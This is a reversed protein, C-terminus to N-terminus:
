VVGFCGWFGVLCCGCAVTFGTVVGLWGVRGGVGGLLLWRRRANWWGWPGSVFMRVLGSPGSLADAELGLSTISRRFPAAPTRCRAGFGRFLLAGFVVVAGSAVIAPGALLWGWERGSM